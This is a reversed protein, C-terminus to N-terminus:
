FWRIPTPSPSETPTPKISNDSVSSSISNGSVSSGSINNDSVSRYISNGSVSSEPVMDPFAFSQDKGDNEVVVTYSVTMYGSKRFTITHTGATKQYSVPTIGKYINDEYVEAGIPADINIVAYLNKNVNNGSVSSLASTTAEELDVEVLQNLGNVEFYQTVTSYGSASVTLEHMGLPLRISYNTDVFSGDVYTVSNNPYIKFSVVGKEPVASVIDSLDLKTVENRRITIDRYEEIGTNTLRVTYTGEPVTFLMDDMVQSIVTQGIEIWGGIIATENDLELYGHGDDVRISLIEHGQGQITIQDHNILQDLPIEQGGSFVHLNSNLSYIEDGVTLTASNYSYKTIDTFYFAESSLNVSGLKNIDSNYTIKAVDGQQLQMVSLPSGYKDTFTTAGDYSLSIIDSTGLRYFNLLSAEVDASQFMVDAASVFINEVEEEGNEYNSEFQSSEALGISSCGTLILCLSLLFINIRQNFTKKM